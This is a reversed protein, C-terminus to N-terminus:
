AMHALCHRAQTALAQRERQVRITFPGALQVFHAFLAIKGVVGACQDIFANHFCADRLRPSKRQLDALAASISTPSSEGNLVPGSGNSRKM